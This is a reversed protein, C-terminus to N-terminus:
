WDMVRLGLERAVRRAPGDECVLTMQRSMAVAVASAEGPDMGPVQLAMLCLREEAEDLDTIVHPYLRLFRALPSSKVGAVEGVVRRTIVVEQNRRRLALMGRRGSRELQILSSADHVCHFLFGQVNAM